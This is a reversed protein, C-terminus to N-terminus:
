YVANNGPLPVVVCDMYLSITNKYEKPRKAGNKRDKLWCQNRINFNLAVCKKEEICAEVCEKLNKKIFKTGDNIGAGPFRIGSKKCEEIKADVSIIINGKYIYTFFPQVRFM